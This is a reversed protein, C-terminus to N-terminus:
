QKTSLINIMEFTAIQMKRKRQYSQISNTQNKKKRRGLCIISLTILQYIGGTLIVSYMKKKISSTLLPSILCSNTKKEKTEAPNKIKGEGGGKVAKDGLPVERAPLVVGGRLRCKGHEERKIEDTYSINHVVLNWQKTNPM